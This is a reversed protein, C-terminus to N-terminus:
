EGHKMRAAVLNALAAAEQGADLEWTPLPLTDWARDEQFVADETLDAKRMAVVSPSGRLRILLDPKPLLRVAWRALWGPGAYGLANPQGVYGYGWRDGIVLGRRSVMPKIWRWYGLWFLVVSHALRLWGVVPHGPDTRKPPAVNGERPGPPPSQWLSPRFHVYLTPPGHDDILQRALTTKGVGDPGVLVVFRGSGDNM